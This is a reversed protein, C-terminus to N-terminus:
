PRELREPEAGLARWRTILADIAEMSEPAENFEGDVEKARELVRAIENLTEAATM